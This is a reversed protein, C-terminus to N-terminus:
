NCDTNAPHELFCKECVPNTKLDKHKKNDSPEWTGNRITEARKSSKERMCAMCEWTSHSESKTYYTHESKGHKPCDRFSRKLGDIRPRGM